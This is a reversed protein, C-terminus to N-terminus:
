SVQSLVGILRLLPVILRTSISRICRIIGFRTGYRSRCHRSSDSRVGPTPYSVLGGVKESTSGVAYQQLQELTDARPVVDDDMLWFWNYGQAYAYALGTFFRGASGVNEELRICHVLARQAYGARCLAESTGDSSPNDVLIIADVPRSQELVRQLWTLLLEKRNYTPIVAAVQM